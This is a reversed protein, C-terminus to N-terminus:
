SGEEELSREQSPGGFVWQGQLPGRAVEPLVPKAGGLTAGPSLQGFGLAKPTECHLSSHVHGFRARPPCSPGFTESHNAAKKRIFAHVTGHFITASSVATLRTLDLNKYFQCLLISCYDVPNIFQVGGCGRREGNIKYGAALM